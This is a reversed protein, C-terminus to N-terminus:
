TDTCESGGCRSEEWEWMIEVVRRSWDLREMGAGMAWEEADISMLYSMADSDGRRAAWVELYLLRCALNVCGCTFIEV